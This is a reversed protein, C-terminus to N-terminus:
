QYYKQRVKRDLAQFQEEPMNWIDDATLKGFTVPAGSLDLNQLGQVNRQAQGTANQSNLNVPENKVSPMKQIATLQRKAAQTFKQQFRFIGLEIAERPQLSVGQRKADDLVNNVEAAIYLEFEGLQPHKKRYEDILAEHMEELVSDPLQRLTQSDPHSVGPSQPQGQALPFVGGPSTSMSLMAPVPMQSYLEPPNQM